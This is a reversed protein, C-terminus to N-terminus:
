RVLTVKILKRLRGCQLKIIYAGIAMSSTNLMYSYYGPILTDNVLIEVKAGSSNFVTLSVFATNDLGFEINLFQGFPNPYAKLLLNGDGIIVPNETPNSNVNFVFPNFADAIIMDKVFNITEKCTYIKSDTASFYKFKIAEGEVKNSYIMIPFLYIGSPAFFYSVTLGRLQDDFFAYLTDNKSGAAQNDIQVKATISGNNEFKTPDFATTSSAYSGSLGLVTKHGSLGTGALRLV